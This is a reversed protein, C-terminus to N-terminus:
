ALWDLCGYHFRAPHHQAPFFGMASAFRHEHHIAKAFLM